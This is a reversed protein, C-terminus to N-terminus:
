IANAKVQHWYMILGGSIGIAISTLGRWEWLMFYASIFKIVTYITYIFEIKLLHYLEYFSMALPPILCYISGALVIAFLTSDILKKSVAAGLYTRQAM